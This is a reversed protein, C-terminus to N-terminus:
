RRGILGLSGVAFGLTFLAGPEPMNSPPPPLNSSYIITYNSDGPFGADINFTPLCVTATAAVGNSTAQANAALTIEIPVDALISDVDDFSFSLASNYDCRAPPGACDGDVAGTAISIITDSAFSHLRDPTTGSGSIDLAVMGPPGVVEMFYTM